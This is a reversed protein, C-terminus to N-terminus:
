QPCRLGGAQSKVVLTRNPFAANDAARGLLVTTPIAVALSLLSFGTAAEAPRLLAGEVIYEKSAITGLNTGNLAFLTIAAATSVGFLGWIAGQTGRIVSRSFHAGGEIGSSATDRLLALAAKTCRPVPFPRCLDKNAASPLPKLPSPRAASCLPLRAILIEESSRFDEEFPQREALHSAMDALKEPVSLHGCVGRPCLGYLNYNTKDRLDHRWVRLRSVLKPESGEVTTIEDIEAGILQGTLSPCADQLLKACQAGTCNRHKGDAPLALRTVRQGAFSELREILTQEAATDIECGRQIGWLIVRSPADALEDARVRGLGLGAVVVYGVLLSLVGPRLIQSVGIRQQPTTKM